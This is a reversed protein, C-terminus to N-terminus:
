KLVVVSVGVSEFARVDIVFGAQFAHDTPFIPYFAGDAHGDVALHGPIHGVSFHLDSDVGFESALAVFVAGNDNVVVKRSAVAISDANWTGRASTEKWVVRFSILDKLKQLLAPFALEGERYQPISKM